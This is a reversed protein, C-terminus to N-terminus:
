IKTKVGRPKYCSPVLSIVCYYLNPKDEGCVILSMEHNLIDMLVFHRSLCNFRPKSVDLHALMLAGSINRLVSWLGFCVCSPWM